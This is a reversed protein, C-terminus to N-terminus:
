ALIVEGRERDVDRQFLQRLSKGVGYLDGAFEFHFIDPNVRETDNLVVFTVPPVLCSKHLVDVASGM